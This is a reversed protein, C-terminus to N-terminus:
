GRSELERRTQELYKLLDRQAEERHNQIATCLDDDLELQLATAGHEVALAAAKKMERIGTEDNDFAFLLARGKAWDGIVSSANTAGPVSLVPYSEWITGVAALADTLGEAILTPATTRQEGRLVARGAENAFVSEALRSGKPTMTKIGRPPNEVISRAQVNVIDSTDVAYLPALVRYGARPWWRVSEPLKHADDDALVGVFGLEWADMLGRMDLWDYVAADAHCAEDDRARDLAIRWVAGADAASFAPKHNALNEIPETRLHNTPSSHGRLLANFDVGLRQAVQKCTFAIGCAHCYVTNTDANVVADPRRDDHFPCRVRKLQQPTGYNVGAASLVDLIFGEPLSKSGAM